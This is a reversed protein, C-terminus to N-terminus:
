AAGHILIRENSRLYGLNPRRMRHTIAADVGRIPVFDTKEANPGGMSFILLETKVEEPENEDVLASGDTYFGLRNPAIANLVPAALEKESFRDGIQSKGGDIFNLIQNSKNFKIPLYPIFPNGGVGEWPIERGDRLYDLLSPRQGGRLRGSARLQQIYETYQEVAPDIGGGGPSRVEIDTEELFSKMTTTPMVVPMNFHLEQKGDAGPPDLRYRWFLSANGRIRDWSSKPARFEDRLRVPQPTLKDRDRDFGGRTAADIMRRFNRVGWESDNMKWAEDAFTKSEWKEQPHFVVRTDDSVMVGPLGGHRRSKILSYRSDLSEILNSLWVINWAVADAEHKQLDTLQVTERVQRFPQRPGNQVHRVVELPRGLGYESDTMMARRFLEFDRDNACSWVNQPKGGERLVLRIQQSRGQGERQYERLTLAGVYWELAQRVGPIEYLKQLQESTILQADVNKILDEPSAANVKKYYAARALQWRADYISKEEETALRYFGPEYNPTVKTYLEVAREKHVYNWRETEPDLGLTERRLAGVVRAVDPSTIFRNQAEQQERLLREYEVRDEPSLSAGLRNFLEQYRRQMDALFERVYDANAARGPEPRAPEPRAPGGPPTANEWGEPIQWEHDFPRLASDLKTMNGIDLGAQQMFTAYMRDFARNVHWRPMGDHRGPNYRSNNQPDILPEVASGVQSHFDARQGQAFAASNRAATRRADELSTGRAVAESTAEQYRTLVEGQFFDDLLGNAMDISPRVGQEGFLRARERTLRDWETLQDANRRRPPIVEIGDIHQQVSEFRSIGREREQREPGRPPLGGNQEQAAM